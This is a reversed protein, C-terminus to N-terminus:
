GKKIKLYKIYEDFFVYGLKKRTVESNRDHYYHDRVREGVHFCQKGFKTMAEVVSCSENLHTEPSVEGAIPLFESDIVAKEEDRRVGVEKIAEAYSEMAKLVTEVNLMVADPKRLLFEATIGTVEELIMVPRIEKNGM